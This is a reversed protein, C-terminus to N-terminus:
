SDLCGMNVAATVAALTAAGASFISPVISLVTVMGMVMCDRNKGGAQQKEMQSLDLKKMILFKQNIFLIILEFNAFIKNM